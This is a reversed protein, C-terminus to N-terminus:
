KQNDWRAQESSMVIKLNMVTLCEKRMDKDEEM